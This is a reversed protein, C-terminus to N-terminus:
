LWRPSCKMKFRGFGFCVDPPCDCLFVHIIVVHDCIIVTVFQSTHIYVNPGLCELVDLVLAGTLLVDFRNWWRSQGFFYERATYVEFCTAQPPVLYSCVMPAMVSVLRTGDCTVSQDHQRSAVSKIVIEAVFICAFIAEFVLWGPWDSDNDLSIGLLLFGRLAFSFVTSAKSSLWSSIHLLVASAHAPSLACYLTVTAPMFSLNHIVLM